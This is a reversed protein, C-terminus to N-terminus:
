WNAKKRAWLAGYSKPSTDFNGHYGNAKAILPLLTGKMFAEADGASIAAKVVPAGAVKTVPIPYDIVNKQADKKNLKLYIVGGKEKFAKDGQLEGNSLDGDVLGRLWAACDGPDGNFAASVNPDQLFYAAVVDAFTGLALKGNAASLKLPKGAPKVWKSVYLGGLLTGSSDGMRQYREDGTSCTTVLAAQGSGTVYEVGLTTGADLDGFLQAPAFATVSDPGLDEFLVQGLTGDAALTYVAIKSQEHGTVALVTAGTGVGFLQGAYTLADPTYLPPAAMLGNEGTEIDVVPNPYQNGASDTGPVIVIRGAQETFELTQHAALTYAQGDITGDVSVYSPNYLRVDSLKGTTPIIIDARAPVLVALAALAAVGIGLNVLKRKM